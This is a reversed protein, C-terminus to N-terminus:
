NPKRFHDDCCNWFDYRYESNNYSFFVFFRGIDITFFRFRAIPQRTLIYLPVIFKAFYVRSMKKGWKDPM